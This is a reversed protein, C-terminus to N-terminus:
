RQITVRSGISLIDFVDEVDRNTLRITGPGGIRGISQPDNTGHISTRSGLDVLREGLPNNPNDADIVQGNGYYTPNLIKKKVLHSGAMVPQDQGVGIRFRGAYRGHLLLTLEMRDLRVVADFPGRVVKLPQGPQLHSPDRIGNIKALLEWPVDFRDAIQPLTDGPQVTYPPELHHERSYVVTGAVQDLLNTLQRDEEPTLRPNGYFGSLSQFAELLNGKDLTRLAEQIYGAFERRVGGSEPPAPVALPPNTPAAAMPPVSSPPSAWPAGSVSATPPPNMAAFPPAMDPPLPQNGTNSAPPAMSDVAGPPYGTAPSAFRPAESGPISAPPPTPRFPPAEATGPATPQMGPMTSQVSPMGLPANMHLSSGPMSASASPLPPMEIKPSNSQSSWNELGQPAKVQSNTTLLIYVGGAVVALAAIFVLNKLLDM